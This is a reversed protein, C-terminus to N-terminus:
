FTAADSASDNDIESTSATSALATDTPKPTALEIEITSKTTIETTPPIRDDTTTNSTTTTTM